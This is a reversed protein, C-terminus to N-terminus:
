FSTKETQPSELIKGYLESSSAQYFKAPKDISRIAELIPTLIIRKLGFHQGSNV